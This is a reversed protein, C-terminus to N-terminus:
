NAKRLNSCSSVSLVSGAKEGNERNGETRTRKRNKRRNSNKLFWVAVNGWKKTAGGFLIRYDISLLV